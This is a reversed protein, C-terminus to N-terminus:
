FSATSVALYGLYSGQGTRRKEVSVSSQVPLFSPAEDKGSTIGPWECGKLDGEVASSNKVGNCVGATM